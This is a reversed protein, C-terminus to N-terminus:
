RRKIRSLPRKGDVYAHGSYTLFPFCQGSSWGFFYDLEERRIQTQRRRVELDVRFHVPYPVMPLPTEFGDREAGVLGFLPAVFEPLHLEHQDLLHQIDVSTITLIM